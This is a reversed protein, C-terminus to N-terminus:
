DFGSIVKRVTPSDKEFSTSDEHDGRITLRAKTIVKDDQIKENVVWNMGLRPLSTDEIEQYVDFRDFDALEAEKAKRVAVSGYLWRPVNVAFVQESTQLKCNELNEVTQLNEPSVHGTNQDVLNWWYRYAGTRKGARNLVKATVFVDSNERKFRVFDNRKVDYANM